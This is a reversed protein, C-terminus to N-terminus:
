LESGPPHLPRGLLTKKVREQFGTRGTAIQLVRPRCRVSEVCTKPASRTSLRKSRTAWVSRAARLARARGPGSQSRTCM